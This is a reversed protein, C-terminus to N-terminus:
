QKGKKTRLFGKIADEINQHNSESWYDRFAFLLESRWSVAPKVFNNKTAKKQKAFDLSIEKNHNEILPMIRNIFAIGHKDNKNGFMLDVEKKIKSRLKKM